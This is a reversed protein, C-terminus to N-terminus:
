VAACERLNCRQVFRECAQASTFRRGGARFSELKGSKAYRDISSKSPAGPIHSQADGLPIVHEQLLLGVDNSSM